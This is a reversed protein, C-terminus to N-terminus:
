LIFVQKIIKMSEINVDISHLLFAKAIDVDLVTCIWHVPGDLNPFPSEIDEAIQLIKLITFM